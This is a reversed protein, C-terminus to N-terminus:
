HAIYSTFARWAKQHLCRKPSTLALMDPSNHDELGARHTFFAILWCEFSEQKFLVGRDSSVLYILWSNYIFFGANLSCTHPSLTSQQVPYFFFLPILPDPDKVCTPLSADRLSQNLCLLHLGPTISTKLARDQLFVAARVERGVRRQSWLLLLYPQRSPLLTRASLGQKWM